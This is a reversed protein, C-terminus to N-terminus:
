RRLWLKYWKRKLRHNYKRIDRDVMERVMTAFGKELVVRVEEEGMDVIMTVYGGEKNEIVDTVDIM